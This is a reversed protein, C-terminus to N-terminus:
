PSRGARMRPSKARPRKRPAAPRKGVYGAVLTHMIRAIAARSNGSFKMHAVMHGLGVFVRAADDSNLDVAFSGEAKGREVTARFISCARRHFELYREWTRDRVATSWDLWVRGYDPHSSFSDFFALLTNEVCLPAAVDESNMPVVLGDILFRSVEDQVAEALLDHTAFYFFIAPLSIGAEAAVESHNTHGIGRRAFVRLASQVIQAKREAPALRRARERKKPPDAPATPRIAADHRSTQETVDV